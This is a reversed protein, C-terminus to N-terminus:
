SFSMLNLGIEQDEKKTIPEQFENFIIECTVGITAEVLHGGFLKMDETGVIIHGHIIKEDAKSAVNGLLSLLELPENFQKSSYHKQELDYHALEVSSVAGIARFYGSV